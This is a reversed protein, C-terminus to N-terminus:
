RFCPWGTASDVRVVPLTRNVLVRVRRGENLPYSTLPVFREKVYAAASPLRDLANEWRSGWVVFAVTERELRGAVQRDYDASAHYNPLFMSDGGAFPRRAYVSVEPAYGPVFLRHAPTTCREVYKLFPVLAAVPGAPMQREAYPDRLEAAREAFRQPMRGLGGFLSARDLQEPVDGVAGISV